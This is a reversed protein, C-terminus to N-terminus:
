PGARSKGVTTQPTRTHHIEYELRAIAARVEILLRPRLMAFSNSKWLDPDALDFAEAFSEYFPTAEREARDADFSAHSLRSEEERLQAKRIEAPQKDRQKRQRELRERHLRRAEQPTPMTGDRVMHEALAVAEERSAAKGRISSAHRLCRGEADEICWVGHKESWEVAGWIEGDVLLRGVSADGHFRVVVSAARRPDDEDRAGAHADAPEVSPHASEMM